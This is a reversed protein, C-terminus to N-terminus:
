RSHVLEKLPSRMATFFGSRKPQKPMVPTTAWKPPPADFDLEDEDARGLDFGAIDEAEPTSAASLGKPTVLPPSANPDEPTGVGGSDSSGTRHTDPSGPSSPAAGM